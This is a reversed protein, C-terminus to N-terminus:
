NNGLTLRRLINAYVQGFKFNRDKIKGKSIDYRKNMHRVYYGSINKEQIQLLIDLFTAENNTECIKENKDNFVTVPYEELIHPIIENEPVEDIYIITGQGHIATIVFKGDIDYQEEPFYDNDSKYSSPIGYVVAYDMITDYLPCRPEYRKQIEKNIYEESTYKIICKKIFEYRDKESMNHIKEIYRNRREEAAKIKQSFRDLDEQTLNENFKKLAALVKDEKQKM